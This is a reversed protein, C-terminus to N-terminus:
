EHDAPRLFLFATRGVSLMSGEALLVPQCPPIPRGNVATGNLSNLDEVMVGDAGRSIRCHRRSVASDQLVIDCLEPHRGLTLGQSMRRLATDAIGLRLPAGAEDQGDLVWGQDYESRRLAEATINFRQPGTKGPSEIAM